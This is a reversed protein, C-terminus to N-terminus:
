DVTMVSMESASPQSDVALQATAQEYSPPRESVVESIEPQQTPQGYGRPMRIKQIQESSTQSKYRPHGPQEHPHGYYGYGYRSSEKIPQEPQTNKWRRREYQPHGPQNHPHGYYGYGYRSSDKDDQAEQAISINSQYRPHGPQEEPRGYYGYGYQREQTDSTSAEVNNTANFCVFAGLALLTYQKVNKM